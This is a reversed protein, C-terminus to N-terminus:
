VCPNGVCVQGLYSGTHAKTCAKATTPPRSCQMRILRDEEASGDSLGNLAFRGFRFKVSGDHCETLGMAQAICAKCIECCLCRGQTVCEGSRPHSPEIAPIMPAATTVSTANGRRGVNPQM